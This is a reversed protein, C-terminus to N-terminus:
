ARATWTVRGGDQPPDDVAVGLSATNRTSYRYFRVSVGKGPPVHRGIRRMASVLLELEHQMNRVQAQAKRAIRIDRWGGRDPATLLGWKPPIDATIIVGVPALFYRKQGLGLEPHARFWKHRDRLFDARSAKCEILTTDHGRFGIADPTEFGASSMETITVSHVVQLWDAAMAVLRAHKM